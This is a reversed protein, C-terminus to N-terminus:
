NGTKIGSRIDKLHSEFLEKLTKLEFDNAFAVAKSGTLKLAEFVEPALIQKRKEWDTPCTRAAKLAALWEKSETKRSRGNQPEKLEVNWRMAAMSQEVALLFGDRGLRAMQGWWAELAPENYKPNKSELANADLYTFWRNAAAHCEADNLSDPIIVESSKGGNISSEEGRKEEPGAGTGHRVPVNTGNVDPCKRQRQKKQQEVARTKASKSLHREFNPIRFKDKGNENILELWGVEVLADVMGDRCAARDLGRKTGIVDPCDLSMNADCWSWFLVLHGVVQLEDISLIEAIRM